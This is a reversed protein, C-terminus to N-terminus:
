GKIGSKKFMSLGSVTTNGNTLFCSKRLGKGYGGVMVRAGCQFMFMGSRTSGLWDQAFTTFVVRSSILGRRWIRLRWLYGFDGLVERCSGCGGSRLKVIPFYQDHSSSLTNGNLLIKLFTRVPRSHSLYRGPSAITVQPFRATPLLVTAMQHKTNWNKTSEKLSM